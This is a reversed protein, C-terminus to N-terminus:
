YTYTVKKPRDGNIILMVSGSKGMRCSKLDFAITERVLERCADGNAQHDINVNLQPPMSKMFNGNHRATFVHEKCGGTYEAEIFLTDGNVRVNNAEFADSGYRTTDVLVPKVELQYAKQAFAAKTEADLKPKRSKCSSTAVGVVMLSIATFISISQKMM